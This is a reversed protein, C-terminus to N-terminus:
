QQDERIEIDGGGLQGRELEALFDDWEENRFVLRGCQALTLTGKGAFVRVHVHEGLREYYMRFLSM